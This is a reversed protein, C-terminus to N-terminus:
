DGTEIEAEFSHVCDSCSGSKGYRSVWFRLARVEDRDVGSSEFAAPLFVYEACHAAPPDAAEPAIDAELLIKRKQPTRRPSRVVPVTANCRASRASPM